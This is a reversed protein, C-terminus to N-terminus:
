SVRLFVTVTPCVSSWGRLPPMLFGPVATGPFRFHFLGSDAKASPVLRTLVRDEVVQRAIPSPRKFESWFAPDAGLTPRCFSEANAMVGMNELDQV